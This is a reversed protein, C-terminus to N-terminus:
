IWLDGGIIPIKPPKYKRPKNTRPKRSRPMKRKPPPGAVMNLLSDGLTTRGASYGRATAREIRGKKYAKKYAATEEARLAAREAKRKRGEKKRKDWYGM